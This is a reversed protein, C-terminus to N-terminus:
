ASGAVPALEVGFHVVAFDPPPSSAGGAASAGIHRPAREGPTHSVTGTEAEAFIQERRGSGTEIPIVAGSPPQRLRSVRPSEGPTPPIRSRNPRLRGCRSQPSRRPIPGRLMATHYSAPAIDPYM